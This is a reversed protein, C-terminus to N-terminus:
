FGLKKDHFFYYFVSINCTIGARSGGEIRNFGGLGLELAPRIPYKDYEFGFFVEYGSGGRILPDHQEPSSSYRENHRIGL